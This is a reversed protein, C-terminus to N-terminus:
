AREQIVSSPNKMQLLGMSYRELFDMYSQFLNETKEKTTNTV